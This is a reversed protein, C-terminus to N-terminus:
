APSDTWSSQLRTTKPAGRRIHRQIDKNIKSIAKGTRGQERLRRREQFMDQLVKDQQQQERGQAVEKSACENAMETLVEEVRTISTMAGETTLQATMM